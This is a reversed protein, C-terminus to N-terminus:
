RPPQPPPQRSFLLKRGEPSFNGAADLIVAEMEEDVATRKTHVNAMATAVAAGDYPEAVLKARFERRAAQLATTLEQVKTQHAKWAALLKDKDAQPLPESLREIVAMPGGGPLPPPPHHHQWLHHAFYGAVFINLALSAFLVARVVRGRAGGNSM